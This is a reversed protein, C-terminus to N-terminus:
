LYIFGPLDELSRVEVKTLTPNSFKFDLFDNEAEARTARAQTHVKYSYRKMPNLIAGDIGSEEPTPNPVLEVVAFSM